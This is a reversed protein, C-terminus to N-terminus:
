CLDIRKIKWCLMRQDLLGVMGFLRLHFHVYSCGLM